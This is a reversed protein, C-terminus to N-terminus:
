CGPCGAPRRQGRVLAGGGGGGDGLAGRPGGELGALQGDDARAIVDPDDLGHALEPAARAAGGLHDELGVASPVEELAPRQALLGGCADRKSVGDLLMERLSAERE